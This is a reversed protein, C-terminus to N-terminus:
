LFILLAAGFLIRYVGFIMLSRTQLYHMFFRIAAMGIVFTLLLAGYMSSDIHLLGDKWLSLGVLTNAGIVAPISLMFSLKAADERQYGCLRGGVLTSGL